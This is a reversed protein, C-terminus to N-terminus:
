AGARHEAAKERRKNSLKVRGEAFQNVTKSAAAVM